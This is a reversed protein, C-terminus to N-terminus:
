VLEYYARKYWSRRNSGLKAFVYPQIDGPIKAIMADQNSPNRNLENAYFQATADIVEWPLYPRVNAPVSNWFGHFMSNQYKTSLTEAFAQGMEAGYQQLIANQEAESLGKFYGLDKLVYQL